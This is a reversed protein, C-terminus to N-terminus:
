IVRDYRSLKLGLDINLDIPPTSIRMLMRPSVIYRVRTGRAGTTEITVTLPMEHKERVVVVTVTKRSAAARLASTIERTTSVNTNDVKIIVDGAKIGAKEAASNPTVAKVLVGDKVGLFEAFQREHSLAEGEIGLMPSQYMPQIRPIDIPPMEPITIEPIHIEPFPQGDIMMGRRAELTPTLTQMAGNRWVQVKVERGPPTERILRTLQVFSEVPQGNYEWVVDGEKFGAKAAPSNEVVNTIEVGRVDRLKLAKARDPDINKGGIGLYSVATSEAAARARASTPPQPPQPPEAQAWVSVPLM